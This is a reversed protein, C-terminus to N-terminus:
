EMCACLHIGAGLHAYLYYTSMEKSLWSKGNMRLGLINKPKKKQHAAIKDAVTNVKNETLDSLGVIEAMKKDLMWYLMETLTNGRNGLGIIGIRVKKIPKDAYSVMSGSIKYKSKPSSASGKIPSLLGTGLGLISHLFTKRKM